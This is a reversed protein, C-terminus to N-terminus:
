RMVVQGLDPRHSILCVGSLSEMKALDADLRKGEGVEGSREKEAEAVVQCATGESVL